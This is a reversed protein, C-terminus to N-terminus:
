TKPAAARYLMTRPNRVTRMVTTVSDFGRGLVAVVDEKDHHRFKSIDFRFPISIMSQLHLVSGNYPVSAEFYRRGDLSYTSAKARPKVFSNFVFRGQENVLFKVDDIRDIDVYGIAQRCVVVDFKIGIQRLAGSNVDCKIQLVRTDKCRPNIDIVAARSAGRRLAETAVVGTGGCLDLVSEGERFEAFELLDTGGTLWRAYLVDYDEIDCVSFLESMVTDM